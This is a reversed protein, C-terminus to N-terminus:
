YAFCITGSGGDRRTVDASFRFCGTGTGGDRPMDASYRFCGGGEGTDMRPAGASYSFCGSGEGGDARPSLPVTTAAASPGNLDHASPLVEPSGSRLVYITGNPGTMLRDALLASNELQKM